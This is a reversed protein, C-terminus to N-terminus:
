AAVGKPRERENDIDDWALPPAFGLQRAKAAAIRSPGLVTSLQEYVDAIRHALRASIRGRSLLTPLSRPSCGIRRAIERNPWGMWALAQVRRRAGLAPVGRHSDFAVAPVSLIAQESESLMWACGNM